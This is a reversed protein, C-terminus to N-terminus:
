QIWRNEMLATEDVGRTRRIRGRFARVEMGESFGRCVSSRVTHQKLEKNKRSMLKRSHEVTIVAPLQSYDM